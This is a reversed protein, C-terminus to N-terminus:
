DCINHSTEPGWTVPYNVLNPDHCYTAWHPTIKLSDGWTIVRKSGVHHWQNKTYRWHDKTDVKVWREAWTQVACQVRKDAKFSIKESALIASAEDATMIHSFDKSSILTRETMFPETEYSVWVDSPSLDDPPLTKPGLVKSFMLQTKSKPTFIKVVMDGKIPLLYGNKTPKPWSVNDLTELPKTDRSDVNILQLSFSNGTKKDLYLVSNERLNGTRILYHSPSLKTVTGDDILFTGKLSPKTTIELKGGIVIVATYSTDYVVKPGAVASLALASLLLGIVLNKKM